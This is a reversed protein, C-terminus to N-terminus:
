SRIDILQPLTSEYWGDRHLSDVKTLWSDYLYSGRDIGYNQQTRAKIWPRDLTKVADIAQMFEALTRCRFGTRGEDVTETFAGYDTTIVPTGVMGAEVAVGGFPELYTTPAILAHANALLDAKQEPDTIIGLHTAGPVDDGPQGVMILERDTRKAIEVLIPLGKRPTSRGIFLLYDGGESQLKFDDPDYCNPIVTDFYRIDDDHHLGAVHHMWAYSEFCKHTEPIVGGYGIGWEITLPRYGLRGQLEDIIQKQCQGAILALVDDPQWSDAIASAAHTNMQVWHPADPEWLDFVRDRDWQETGFWRQRDAAGVIPTDTLEAGYTICERDSMRLMQAFRRIKATYACSGWYKSLDTHPLAVIHVTM